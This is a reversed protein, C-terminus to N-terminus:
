SIKVELAGKKKAEEAKPLTINLIGNEYAASINEAVVTKPLTFSRKFSTYSFEKRTFKEGEELKDEKTEASITLINDEVKLNFNEKSYGPVAVEIKYAEKTDKINVSPRVLKNWENHLFGPFDNEFINEFLNSFEPRVLGRSEPRLTLMTM